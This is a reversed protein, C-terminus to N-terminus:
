LAMGAGGGPLPLGERGPDFRFGPQQSEGSGSGPAQLTVNEPTEIGVALLTPHGEAVIVKIVQPGFLFKYPVLGDSAEGEIGIGYLARAKTMSDGVRLGDTTAYQRSLAAVRRVRGDIFTVSLNPVGGAELDPDYHWMVASHGTKWLMPSPAFAPKGLIELVKAPRDGLGIGALAVRAPLRQLAVAALAVGVLGLTIGVRAAPQAGPVRRSRPRAALGADGALLPRGCRSCFRDALHHKAGCGHCVLVLRHGELTKSIRM